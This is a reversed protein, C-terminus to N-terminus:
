SGTGQRALQERQVGLSIQNLGDEFQSKEGNECIYRVGYRTGDKREQISQIAVVGSHTEGDYTISATLREGIEHKEPSVAAFGTSSVDVVDCGHADGLQATISTSLTTVRYTERGEAPAPDGITELKVVLTPEDERVEDIRALQQVFKKRAEYFIVFEGQPAVDFEPIPFEAIWAGEDIGVVSGTHLTRQGPQTPDLLHIRNGTKLM